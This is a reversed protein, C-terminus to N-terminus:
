PESKYGWWWKYFEYAIPAAISSGEGGEEILITVVIEPKDVPAFSTFWAHNSKNKNWQATGTKGAVAFPLTGLRRCSGYEVCDVMGVKVTSLYKETFLYTNIKKVSYKEQAKTLPNEFYDLLHPRFLIGGNAIISTLSSIQLPTVLLGGQGISLNYTDGIYWREGTATEKWERSPILGAKEGPLDIGLKQGFGFYKLYKGILDVGLGVFSRYGGGIYYYFTNVSSALSKKVDTLGHGGALWDPFFWDGVQIGGVSLVTTQSTIIGEQLAAYAIAPKIVSGSPFLGSVARNFFPKNEDQLYNKYVEPSIGGSFDNNDFTPLSVMALVGGTNPNLVIGSARVKNNNKLVARILEELKKQMEFDITLYAHKGSIPAEEALTAREKGSADVEVRKKGYVGRLEKEYNKEIGVKGINDSSLYGQDRLNGVDAQSLKGIYGLLASLSYPTSTVVERALSSNYNLYLRKSGRQIEIGPLDAATILISLATDYDIDEQIVVSEHNYSGYENIKKEIEEQSQYILGSLREILTKRKQADRPLEQPVLALYFNPINKTLQKGNADFILGREAFIPIIKQRNGEAALRYEGGRVAQLYFLRSFILIFAALLVIFFYRAMRSTLKTGVFNKDQPLPPQRGTHQEFVVSEEVWQYRSPM